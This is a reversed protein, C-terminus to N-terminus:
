PKAKLAAVDTQLQVIMAQQEQIAATLTAVLFSTDIGQYKPNGEADVADKEGTVCQPVVEALEHAIFGEGDSGDAKWKYTCPKLAAVKDLAGTMPQINEKLRYDSSTAYTTSTNNYSIYGVTTANNRFDLPYSTATTNARNFFIAAAGSSDATGITLGGNGVPTTTGVLLNGVSDIRIRESGATAMYLAGGVMGVEAANTVNDSFQLSVDRGTATSQLRAVINSRPTTGTQGSSAFLINAATGTNNVNLSTNSNVTGVVDLKYSPSSTGIGVDGSAGWYPAGTTLKDPSVSGQSPAISQLTTSLYRVYVNNTGSSPAASFTLTLGSVSYASPQQDVNNVVVLIDNVSNVARSLTFATQSGTGSFTDTGAIFSQSTPTSGIYAM